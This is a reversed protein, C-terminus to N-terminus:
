GIWLWGIPWRLEYGVAADIGKRGEDVEGGSFFTEGVALEIPEEGAM